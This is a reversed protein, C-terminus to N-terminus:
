FSGLGELTDLAGNQGINELAQEARTKEKGNTQNKPEFIGAWGNEMSQILMAEATRADYKNLKAKMRSIAIMSMPKKIQKRHQIFEDFTRHLGEDLLSHKERIVNVNDNVNVNVNVNDAQNAQTQKLEELMAQKQKAARALGGKRGAEARRERSGNWKELDRKLQQKIPEFALQVLLNKTEPKLDNVYRLIHKFLEGADNDPLKEITHIIDAYLIFSKKNEM